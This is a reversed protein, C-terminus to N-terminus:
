CFLVNFEELAKMLATVAECISEKRNDKVTERYKEALSESVHKFVVDSPTCCCRSHCSCSKGTDTSDETKEEGEVAELEEGEDDDDDDSEGAFIPITACFQGGCGSRFMLHICGDFIEPDKETLDSLVASLLQGCTRMKVNQQFDSSWNAEYKRADSDVFTVTVGVLEVNKWPCKKIEDRIKEVVDTSFM